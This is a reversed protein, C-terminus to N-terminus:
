MSTTEASGLSLAHALAHNIQSLLKPRRIVKLSKLDDSSLDYEEPTELDQWKILIKNGRVYVIEGKVAQQKTYHDENNWSCVIMGTKLNHSNM